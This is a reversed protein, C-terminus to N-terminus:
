AVDTWHMVCGRARLDAEVHRALRRLRFWPVNTWLHHTLHHNQGFLVISLFRGHQERTDRYRGAAPFPRHPLYSFTFTVIPALLILPVVVLALLGPGGFVALGVLSLVLATDHLRQLRRLSPKSRSGGRACAKRYSGPFYLGVLMRHWPRKSVAIDPDGPRENTHLHHQQHREMFCTFSMGLPAAAIWGITDNVARNRHAVRHSADHMVYWMVYLGVLNVPLSTALPVRGRVYGAVSGALLAAAAGLLWVTPNAVLPGRPAGRWHGQIRIEPEPLTSSTM